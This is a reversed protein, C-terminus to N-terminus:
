CRHGGKERAHGKHEDEEEGGHGGHGGHMGHGFIHIAIFIILILVSFWNEMIWEM